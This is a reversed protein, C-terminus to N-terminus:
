SIILKSDVLPTVPVYDSFYTLHGDELSVSNFSIDDIDYTHDLRMYFHDNVAFVETKCVHKFLPTDNEYYTKDIYM